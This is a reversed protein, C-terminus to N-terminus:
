NLSVEVALELYERALFGDSFQVYVSFKLQGEDNQGIFFPPIAINM